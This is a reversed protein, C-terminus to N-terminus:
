TGVVSSTARYPHPPGTIALRFRGAISRQQSRPLRTSIQRRRPPYVISTSPVFAATRPSSNYRQGVPDRALHIGALQKLVVLVLQRIQPYRRAGPPILALLKLRLEIPRLRSNRYEPTSNTLLLRPSLADSVSSDIQELRVTLDLHEPLEQRVPTLPPLPPPYRIGSIPSIPRIPCIPRIFASM